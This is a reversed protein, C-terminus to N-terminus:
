EVMATRAENMDGRIAMLFEDVNMTGDKNTDFADFLYPFNEEPIGMKFDKCAKGFEYPSLTKSGDDDMIKFVRQLGIIGRAGRMM